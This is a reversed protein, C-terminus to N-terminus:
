VGLVCFPQRKVWCGQVRLGDLLGVMRLCVWEYAVVICSFWLSFVYVGRGEFGDAAWVLAHSGCVSFFTLLCGEWLGVPFIYDYYEEMGGPRSGDDLEIPRKRKVRRPMKAEVAEVAKARAEAPQSSCSAEFARWAELLMVAEEKADPQQERMSRFAREYV